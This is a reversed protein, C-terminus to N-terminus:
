RKGEDEDVKKESVDKEKSTSGGTLSEIALRVEESQPDVGPLYQLVSQLFEPDCEVGAFDGKTKSSASSADQGTSTSAPLVEDVEM